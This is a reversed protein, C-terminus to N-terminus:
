NYLKKDPETYDSDTDSHTFDGNLSYDSDSDSEGAIAQKTKKRNRFLKSIM